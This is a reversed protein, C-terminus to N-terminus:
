TRERMLAASKEFFSREIGELMRFFALASADRRALAGDILSVLDEADDREYVERSTITAKGKEMTFIGGDLALFHETGAPDLYYGLSVALVTLFDCHGALIGFFGSGDKLRLSRVTRTVLHQPTAIDLEFTAGSM